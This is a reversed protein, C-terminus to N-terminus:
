KPEREAWRRSDGGAIGPEGSSNRTRGRSYTWATGYARKWHRFGRLERDNSAARRNNIEKRTRTAERKAEDFGAEIYDDRAVVRRRGNLRVPRVEARV